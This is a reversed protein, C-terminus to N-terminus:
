IIKSYSLGLKLNSLLFLAQYQIAYTYGIFTAITTTHKVSTIRNYILMSGITACLYIVDMRINTEAVVIGTPLLIFFSMSVCLLLYYWPMLGGFHCVFCACVFACSFVIGYIWDPAELYKSMLTCHIDNQRKKLSTSAYRIIDHGRYLITHVILSVFSALYFWYGIIFTVSFHYTDSHYTANPHLNFFNQLVIPYTKFHWLNSYYLIPLIIWIVLVYGIFINCQAWRPTIIASGFQATIQSWDFQLTGWGLGGGGTLQSLVISKTNMMCMWSFFALVPMMYLPLWHYIFALSIIIVFFRFRTLKLWKSTLDSETEHITRLCVIIPLCSPWLM